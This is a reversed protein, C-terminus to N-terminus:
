ADESRANIAQWRASAEAPSVASWTSQMTTAVVVGSRRNGEHAQVSWCLSPAVRATANSMNAAQVPKTNPREIARLM